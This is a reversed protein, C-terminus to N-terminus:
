TRITFYFTSGQGPASDVSMNGNHREVIRKCVALGIGSGPYKDIAHLRQFINFIREFYKPEIGIGNDRVFFNCGSGQKSGGVEIVLPGSGKFKIANGILNQFVQTLQARDAQVVPLKDVKITANATEISTDLNAIVESVLQETDILEFPEAKSQIRSYTLLDNILIGMRSVAGHIFEMYRKSKDDLQQQNRNAFLELFSAITRLPEQLDHAAVSAFQQLDANSRLLDKELTVQKTIDDLVVVGGQPVGDQDRLPRINVTAWVGNPMSPNQLYIRVGDVSEGNIARMLPLQEKTLPTTGDDAFVGYLAAWADPGADTPGIGLMKEAAPNFILFKGECNAVIVGSGISNLISDLMLRSNPDLQNM